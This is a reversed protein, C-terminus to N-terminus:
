DPNNIAAAAKRGSRTVTVNVMWQIRPQTSKAGVATRRKRHHRPKTAVGNILTIIQNQTRTVLKPSILAAQRPSHTIVNVDARHFHVRRREKQRRFDACAESTDRTRIIKAVTETSHLPKACAAAVEPEEAFFVSPL